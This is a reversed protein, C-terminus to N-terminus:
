DGGVAILDRAHSRAEGVHESFTAQIATPIHESAERWGREYGDIFGRQFENGLFAAHIENSEVVAGIPVALEPLARFWEGALRFEAFAHHLSFELDGWALFRLVLKLPSGTQLSALRGRVGAPTSRGIKIPGGSEAQIFYTAKATNYQRLPGERSPPDLPAPHVEFSALQISEPVKDTIEPCM